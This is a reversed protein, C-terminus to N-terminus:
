KGDCDREVNAPWGFLLECVFAKVPVRKARYNTLMFVRNRGRGCVEDVRFREGANLRLGGGLDWSIALRVEAGIVEADHFYFAEIGTVDDFHKGAM